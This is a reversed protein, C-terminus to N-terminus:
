NLYETARSRWSIDIESKTTRKEIDATDYDLKLKRPLNM